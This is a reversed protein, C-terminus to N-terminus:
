PRLWSSNPISIAPIAAINNHYEGQEVGQNWDGAKLLAATPPQGLLNSHFNVHWTAAKKVIFTCCSHVLMVVLSPTGGSSSHVLM